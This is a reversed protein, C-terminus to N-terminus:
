EGFYFCECYTQLLDHDVGFYETWPTGWDQYELACDSPIGHNDISGVIRLAPGGTSLLIMFEEPEMDKRNTVWGSRFEVSLPHDYIACIVDGHDEVDYELVLRRMEALRSPDSQPEDELLELEEWWKSNLMTAIDEITEAWAKANEIAQSKTNSMPQERHRRTEDGVFIYLM